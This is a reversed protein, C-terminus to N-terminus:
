LTLWLEDKTHALSGPFQKRPKSPYMLLHKLESKAMTRVGGKKMKARGSTHKWLVVDNMIIVFESVWM